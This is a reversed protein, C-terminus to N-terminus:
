LKCDVCIKQHLSIERKIGEYDDDDVIIINFYHVPFTSKNAGNNDINKRM